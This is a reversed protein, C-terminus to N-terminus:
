IIRMLNRKKSKMQSISRKMILKSGPRPVKTTITKTTEVEEITRTIIQLKIKLEMIMIAAKDTTTKIDEITIPEQTAEKTEITMKVEEVTM